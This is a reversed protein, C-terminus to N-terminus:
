SFDKIAVRILSEQAARGAVRAAEQLHQLLDVRLAGPLPLVECPLDRPLVRQRPTTGVLIHFNFTFNFSILDFILHIEPIIMSLILNFDLFKSYNCRKELSDSFTQAFKM